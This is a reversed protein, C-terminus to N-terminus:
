QLPSVQRCGPGRLIHGLNSGSVYILHHAEQGLGKVSKERVETYLESQEPSM